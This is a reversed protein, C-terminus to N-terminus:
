QLPAGPLKPKNAAPFQPKAATPPPKLIERKNVPKLLPSPPLQGPLPPLGASMHGHSLFDPTVPRLHSAASNVPSQKSRQNNMVEHHNNGLSQNGGTNLPYPTVGNLVMSNELQNCISVVAPTQFSVTPINRCDSKDNGFGGVSIARSQLTRKTNPPPPPPPTSSASRHLHPAFPLPPPPGKVFDKPLCPPPISPPPKKPLPSTPIRHPPPIPPAPGKHFSPSLQFPVPPPPYSPPPGTPRGSPTFYFYWSMYISSSYPICLGCVKHLRHVCAHSPLKCTIQHKKSM